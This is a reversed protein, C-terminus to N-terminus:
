EVTLWSPKMNRPSPVPVKAPIVPPINWRNVWAKKLANSNRPAPLTMCAMPFTISMRRNPPKRRIMGTVWQVKRTPQRARAPMKRERSEPALVGDEPSKVISNMVGVRLMM